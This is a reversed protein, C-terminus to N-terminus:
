TSRNSVIPAPLLSNKSMTPLAPRHLSVSFPSLVFSVGEFFILYFCFVCHVVILESYSILNLNTFLSKFEFDLLFMSM